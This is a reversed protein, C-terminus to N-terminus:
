ALLEAALAAGAAIAPAVNPRTFSPAALLATFEAETLRAHHVAVSGNAVIVKFCSPRERDIGHWAIRVPASM